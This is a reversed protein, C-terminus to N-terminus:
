FSNTKSSNLLRWKEIEIESSGPWDCCTTRCRGRRRSGPETCSWKCAVAWPFIWWWICLDGLCAPSRQLRPFISRNFSCGFYDQFFLVFRVLPRNKLPLLQCCKHASLLLQNKYCKIYDQTWAYIVHLFTSHLLFKRGLDPLSRGFHELSVARNCHLPLFCEAQVNLSFADLFILLGSFHQLLCSMRREQGRMTGVPTESPLVGRFLLKLWIISYNMVQVSAIQLILWFRCRYGWVPRISSPRTQPSVTESVTQGGRCPCHKALRTSSHRGQGRVAFAM